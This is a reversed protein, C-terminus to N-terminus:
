VTPCATTAKQTPDRALNKIWIRKGIRWRVPIFKLADELFMLAYLALFGVGFWVAWIFLPLGVVWMVLTDTLLCFRNDGGARLVGIIRVMNMVKVWVCLCFITLTDMLLDSIQADLGTFAQLIWPRALWLLASLVIVLGLSLRNFFRQIRLARHADDAGLAHGVMVASASAIGIFLAFFASELPVMVGMAALAHTGAFGTAVHYTANGLGWIAHNLVLPTAFLVFYSIYHPQWASTMQRPTLAFAHSRGYLWAFLVVLQLVRAWLTGWAAGEVGLAPLGWHGFILLYNLVVNVVVTFAGVLLPVTTNGTARLAGEYIVVIQTLLLVPTTIWLYRVALAVVEPDPNLWALWYRSIAFLLMFPLMLLAGVLLSVALVRTTEETKKAGTYQAVLISAGTAIGIMMVLLLFHLKAALGVAAVADAGLGTVMAVDAMGLLSQLLTQLAVPVALLLVTRIFPSPHFRRMSCIRPPLPHQHENFAWSPNARSSM